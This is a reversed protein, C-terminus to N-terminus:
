TIQLINSFMPAMYSTTIIIERRIDPLCSAIGDYRCKCRQIAVPSFDCGYLQAHPYRKSWIPLAHGCGVDLVSFERDSPVRINRHFAEAFLRAQKRGDALDFASGVKINEDNVECFNQYLSWLFLGDQRPFVNAVM